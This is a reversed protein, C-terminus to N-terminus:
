TRGGADCRRAKRAARRRGASAVQSPVGQSWRSRGQPRPRETGRTSRIARGMATDRLDLIDSAIREAAADTLEVIPGSLGGAESFAQSQLATRISDFLERDEESGFDDRSLRDTIVNGATQVREGISGASVALRRVAEDLVERIQFERAQTPM